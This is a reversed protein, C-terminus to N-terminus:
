NTCFPEMGRRALADAHENGANGAHGKVWVWEVTHRACAADLAKWLEINKVPKGAATKWGRRKWNNIWSTIGDKVYVSDTVLRIEAGDPVAGLAEIAAMLEMQNNTTSPAGGCLDRAGDPGNILVGWGGPGPKRFVGDTFIEYKMANIRLRGTANCQPSLATPAFIMPTKPEVQAGDVQNLWDFLRTTLFRMAAGAGLIPMADIEEVSLPRVSQYGAMLARAKTVNFTADSEFCWANLAIALDYAYFDNCAFYFDILGSVREQMFFVNDPFLDAHIIGKPLNDPNEKLRTLEREMARTLDPSVEDARSHCREFLAQWNGLGHNNPRTLEFGDGALHMQAM